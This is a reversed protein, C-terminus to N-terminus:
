IQNVEGELLQGPCCKASSEIQIDIAIVKDTYLTLAM